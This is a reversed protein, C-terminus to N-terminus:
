NKENEELFAVVTLGKRKVQPLKKAQFLFPKRKQRKRLCRAGMKGDKGERTRPEKGRWTEEKNGKQLPDTFKEEKRTSTQLIAVASSVPSIIEPTRGTSDTWREARLLTNVAVYLLEDRYSGCSSIEQARKAGNTRKAQKTYFLHEIYVCPKFPSKGILPSWWFSISKFTFLYKGCERWFLICHSLLSAPGHSWGM